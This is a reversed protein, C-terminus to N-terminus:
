DYERWQKPSLIVKNKKKIVKKNDHFEIVLKYSLKAKFAYFGIIRVYLLINTRGGKNNTFIM